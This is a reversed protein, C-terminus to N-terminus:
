TDPVISLPLIPALLAPYDCGFNLIEKPLYLISLNVLVIM